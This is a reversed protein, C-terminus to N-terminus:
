VVSRSESRNNDNALTTNGNVCLFPPVYLPIAKNGDASRAAASFSNPSAFTNNLAVFALEFRDLVKLKKRLCRLFIKVTGDTIGLSWAIEKNTLGQVLLGMVQRERPTLRVTSNPLMHPCANRDLWLAGQAVERMCQLHTEVSSTRSLLGRAGVARGQLLFSEPVCDFWLILSSEPQMSVLASLRSLNIAPTVELLILTPTELRVHVELDDLSAFTGSVQFENSNQLAASIGIASISGTTYAAVRIM